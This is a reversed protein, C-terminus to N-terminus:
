SSKQQALLTCSNMGEAPFSLLGTRSDNDACLAQLGQLISLSCETKILQSELYTAEYFVEERGQQGSGSTAFLYAHMSALHPLSLGAM